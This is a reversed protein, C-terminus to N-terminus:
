QAPSERGQQDIAAKNMLPTKEVSLQNATATSASTTDSTKSRRPPSSHSTRSPTSPPRKLPRKSDRKASDKASDASLQAPGTARCVDPRTARRDRHQESGGIGTTMAGRLPIQLLLGSHGYFTRFHGSTPQRAHLCPDLGRLAEARHLDARHQACRIRRLRAHRIAASDDWRADLRFPPGGL